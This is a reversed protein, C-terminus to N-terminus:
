GDKNEGKEMHIKVCEMCDTALCQYDYPCEREHLLNALTQDSQKM